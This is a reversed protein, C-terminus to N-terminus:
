AHGPSAPIGNHSTVAQTCVLCAIIHLFNVYAVIFKIRYVLAHLQKIHNIHQKNSELCIGTNVISVGAKATLDGALFDSVCLKLTSFARSAHSSVTYLTCRDIFHTLGWMLESHTRRNQLHELKLRKVEM